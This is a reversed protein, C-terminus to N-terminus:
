VHARGIERRILIVKEGKAALDKATESDFVARGVAAGPSAPIGVAIPNPAVSKDFQPFMLTMLQQGTVRLLAEDLTIVQQDVLQMAIKFAASATRKGVRTQLIWLKGREVTFEIDCLDRYHTELKYMSRFLM